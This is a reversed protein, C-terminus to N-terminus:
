SGKLDWDAKEWKMISMVRVVGRSTGRRTDDEGLCRTVSGHSLVIVGCGAVFGRRGYMLRQMLCTLQM